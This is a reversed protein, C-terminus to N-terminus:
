SFKWFMTSSVGYTTNALLEEKGLFDAAQYILKDIVIHNSALFEEM